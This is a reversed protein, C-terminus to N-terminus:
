KDIWDTGFKTCQGTISEPDLHLLWIPDPDSARSGPHALRAFRMQTGLSLISEILVTDFRYWCPIMAKSIASPVLIHLVMSDEHSGRPIDSGLHHWTTGTDSLMQILEMAVALEPHFGGHPEEWLCATAIDYIDDSELIIATAGPIHLLSPAVLQTCSPVPRMQLKWGHWGRKNIPVNPGARVTTGSPTLVRGNARCLIPMDGKSRKSPDLPPCGKSWGPLSCQCLKWQRCWLMWWHHLGPLTEINRSVWHKKCARAEKVLLMASGQKFYGSTATSSSLQMRPRFFLLAHDM